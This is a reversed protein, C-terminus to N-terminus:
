EFDVTFFSTSESVPYLGSAIHTKPYGAARIMRVPLQYAEVVRFWTSQFHQKIFAADMDSKWFCVRLKGNKTVTIWATVKRCKCALTEGHLMVRCIGVGGCGSSPSGLIIESKVKKHVPTFVFAKPLLQWSPSTSLKM